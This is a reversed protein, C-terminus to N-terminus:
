SGNTLQSILLRKDDDLFMNNRLANKHTKAFERINDDTVFKSNTLISYLKPVAHFRTIPHQSQLTIYSLETDHVHQSKFDLPDVWNIHKLQDDETVFPHSLLMGKNYNHKAQLLKVVHERNLLHHNDPTSLDLADEESASNVITNVHEPTIEFNDFRKLFALRSM